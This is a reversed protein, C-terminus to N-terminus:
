GVSELSPKFFRSVFQRHAEMDNAMLAVKTPKLEALIFNTVKNSVSEINYNSRVTYPRQSLDAPEPMFTVYLVGLGEALDSSAGSTASSAGGMTVVAVKDNLALKTFGAVVEAVQGRDDHRVFEVQRGGLLGGLEEVQDAIVAMDDDALMGSMAAPGSWSNIVGIKVPETSVPTATATPTPTATDPPTTPTATRTPTPTKDGDDGCAAVLTTVALAPFVPILKQWFGAKLGM